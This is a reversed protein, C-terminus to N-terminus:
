DPLNLYDRYNNLSDYIDYIIDQFELDFSPEIIIFEDYEYTLLNDKSNMYIDFPKLYEWDEDDHTFFIDRDQIKISAVWEGETIELVGDTLTYDIDPYFSMVFDEVYVVEHEPIDFETSNVDWITFAIYDEEIVYYEIEIVYNDKNVKLTIIMGEHEKEFVNSNGVQTFGESLGFEVTIVYYYQFDEFINYTDYDDIGIYDGDNEYVFIYREGLYYTYGFYDELLFEFEGESNKSILMDEFYLLSMRYSEIEEEEFFYIDGEYPNERTIIGYGLSVMALTIIITSFYKMLYNM